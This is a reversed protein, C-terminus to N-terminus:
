DDDDDDDDLSHLLFLHAVSHLPTIMPPPPQVKPVLPYMYPQWRSPFM